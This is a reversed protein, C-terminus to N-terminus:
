ADYAVIGGLFLDLCNSYFCKFFVRKNQNSNIHMSCDINQIFIASKAENTV